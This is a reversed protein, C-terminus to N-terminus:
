SIRMQLAVQQSFVLLILNSLVVTLLKNWTFGVGAPGEEEIRESLGASGASGLNVDAKFMM